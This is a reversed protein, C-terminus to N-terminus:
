SIRRVAKLLLNLATKSSIIHELVVELLSIHRHGLHLKRLVGQDDM